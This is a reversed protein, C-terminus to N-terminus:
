SIHKIENGNKKLYGDIYIKEAKKYVEEETDGFVFLGKYDDSNYGISMGVVINDEKTISYITIQNRGIRRLKKLLKVKM